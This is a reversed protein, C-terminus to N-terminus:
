GVVLLYAYELRASREGELYAGIEEDGYVEEIITWQRELPLQEFIARALKMREERPIRELLEVLLDGHASPDAAIRAVEAQIERALELFSGAEDVESASKRLEARRRTGRVRKM